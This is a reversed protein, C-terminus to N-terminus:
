LIHNNYLFLSQRVIERFLIRMMKLLCDLSIKVMLILRLLIDMMIDVRIFLLVVMLMMVRTMTNSQKSIDVITDAIIIPMVYLLKFYKVVFMFAYRAIPSILIFYKINNLPTLSYKNSLFACM